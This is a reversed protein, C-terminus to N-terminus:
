RLPLGGNGARGVLRVFGHGLKQISLAFDRLIIGIMENQSSLRARLGGSKSGDAHSMM